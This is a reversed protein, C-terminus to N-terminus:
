ADQAGGAGWITSLFRKPLSLWPFGQTARLGAGQAAKLALSFEETGRWTGQTVGWGGAGLFDPPPQRGTFTQESAMANPPDSRGERSGPRLWVLTLARAPRAPRLHGGSM